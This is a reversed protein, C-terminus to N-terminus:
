AANTTEQRQKKPPTIVMELEDPNTTGAGFGAAGRKRPEVDWAIKRMDELSARNVDQYCSCESVKYPIRGNIPNSFDDGPIWALTFGFMLRSCTRVEECNQGKVTRCNACSECLSKGSQPTGNMIKFAM